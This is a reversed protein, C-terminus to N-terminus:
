AGLRSPEFKNGELGNWFYPFYWYRNFWPAILDEHTKMQRAEERTVM